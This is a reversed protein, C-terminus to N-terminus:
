GQSRSENRQNIAWTYLLCVQWYVGTQKRKNIQRQNCATGALFEHLTSSFIINGEKPIWVWGWSSLIGVWVEAKWMGTKLFLDLNFSPKYLYTCLRVSVTLWTSCIISDSLSLGPLRGQGDLFAQPNAPSHCNVQSSRHHIVELNRDRLPSCLMRQAPIPISVVGKEPADM